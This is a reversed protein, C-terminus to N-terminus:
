LINTYNLCKRSSINFGVNVTISTENTSYGKHYYGAPIYISDGQTLITDIILDKHSETGSVQFKRTGKLCYIYMLIIM